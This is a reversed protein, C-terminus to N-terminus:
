VLRFIIANCNENQKHTGFNLQSERKFIIIKTKEEIIKISCKKAKKFDRNFMEGHTAYNPVIPRFKIVIQGKLVLQNIETIM